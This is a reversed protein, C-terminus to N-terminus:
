RVRREVIWRALLDVDARIRAGVQVGLGNSEVIQKATSRNVGLERSVDVMTMAGGYTERLIARKERVEKQTATM